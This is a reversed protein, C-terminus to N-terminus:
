EAVARPLANLRGLALHLKGRNQDSLGKGALFKSIQGHQLGSTLALRSASGRGERAIYNLAATRLAAPPLFSDPTASRDFSSASPPTSILADSEASKESFIQCNETNRLNSQDSNEKERLNAFQSLKENRRNSVAGDFKREPQRWANTAPKLRNLDGTQAFTLEYERALRLSKHYNVTVALFGARVAESIGASIVRGSTSGGIMQGIERNSAIISGNNRGNFRSAIAIVIARARFSLGRWEASQIIHVPLRVYGASGVDIKQSPRDGKRGAM